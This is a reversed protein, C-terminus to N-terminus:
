EIELEGINCAYPKFFSSGAVCRWMSQNTQSPAGNFTPNPSVGMSYILRGDRNEKRPTWDGTRHRSVSEIRM